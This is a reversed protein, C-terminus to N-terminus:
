AGKKAVVRGQKVASVLPNYDQENQDAYAQAFATIAHDFVQGTGM